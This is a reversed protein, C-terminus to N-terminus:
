FLREFQERDQRTRARPIWYSDARPGRRRLPDRGLLRRVFGLPTFVGYYMVGLLIRTNVYGLVGALQMWRRHFSVAAAASAISAGALAVAACALITARTEHGRWFSLAGLVVLVAAVMLASKRAQRLKVTPKETM